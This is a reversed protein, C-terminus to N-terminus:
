SGPIRATLVLGSAVLAARQPPYHPSSYLEQAISGREGPRLKRSEVFSSKRGEENGAPEAGVQLWCEAGLLRKSDVALDASIPFNLYGSTDGPPRRAAEARLTAVAGGVRVERGYPVDVVVLGKATAHVPGGAREPQPVIKLGSDLGVATGALISFALLQALDRMADEADSQVTRWATHWRPDVDLSSRLRELLSLNGFDGRALRVKAEDYPWVWIGYREAIADGTATDLRKCSDAALVMDGRMLRVLVLLREVIARQTASKTSNSADLFDSEADAIDRERDAPSRDPLLAQEMRRTGKGVGAEYRQDVLGDLKKEISLLVAQSKEVESVLGLFGAVLGGLDESGTLAGVLRKAGLQAVMLMIGSMPDMRHMMPSLEAECDTQM